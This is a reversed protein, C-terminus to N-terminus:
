EDHGFRFTDREFLYLLLQADFSRKEREKSASSQICIVRHQVKRPHYVPSRQFGLPCLTAKRERFYRLPSLHCVDFNNNFQRKPVRNRKRFWTSPCSTVSRKPSPWCWRLFSVAGAAGTLDPQLKDITDSPKHYDDSEGSGFFLTPVGAQEFSSHDARNRALNEVIPALIAQTGYPTLEARECAEDVIHQFSPRGKTGVVGISNMSDVRFLRKALALQQQDM